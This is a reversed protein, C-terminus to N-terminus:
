ILTDKQPQGEDALKIMKQLFTYRDGWIEAKIKSVTSKHQLDIEKQKQEFNAKANKDIKKLQNDADDGSKKYDDTQKKVKKM